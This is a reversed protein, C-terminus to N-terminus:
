FLVAQVLPAFRGEPLILANENLQEPPVSSLGLGQEATEIIDIAEQFVTLVYDLLFRSHGVDKFM